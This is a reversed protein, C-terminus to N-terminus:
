PHRARRRSRGPGGLLASIALGAVECWAYAVLVLPVCGDLRGTILCGAAACMLAVRVALLGARLRVRIRGMDDSM